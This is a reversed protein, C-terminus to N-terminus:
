ISYNLRGDMGNSQPSYPVTVKKAMGGERLTSRVVEPKFEKAEDSLASKVTKSTANELTSIFDMLKNIARSAKLTELLAVKAFKSFYENMVIKYKSGNIGVGAFPDCIKFAVRVLFNKQNSIPKLPTRRFEEKM